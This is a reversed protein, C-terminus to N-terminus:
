EGSGGLGLEARLAARRECWDCSQHPRVHPPFVRDIAAEVDATPILGRDSM